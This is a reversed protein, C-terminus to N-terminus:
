GRLAVYGSPSVLAKCFLLSDRGQPQHVVVRERIREGIREGEEPRATILVYARM